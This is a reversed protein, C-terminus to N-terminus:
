QIVPAEPGTAAGMADAESIQLDILEPTGLGAYTSTFVIDRDGMALLRDAHATHGFRVLAGCCCM